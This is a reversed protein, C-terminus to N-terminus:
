KFYFSLSLKHCLYWFYPLFLAWRVLKLWANYVKRSAASFLYFSHRLVSFTKDLGLHNCHNHIVPATGHHYSRPCCRHGALSLLTILSQTLLSLVSQVNLLSTWSLSSWTGWLRRSLSLLWCISAPFHLSSPLMLFSNTFPAAPWHCVCAQLPFNGEAWPNKFCVSGWLSVTSLVTLHLWITSIRASWCPARSIYLQLPIAISDEEIFESRPGLLARGQRWSQQIGLAWVQWAGLARQM